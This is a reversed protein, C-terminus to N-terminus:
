SRVSLSAIPFNWTLGGDMGSSSAVRLTAGDETLRCL